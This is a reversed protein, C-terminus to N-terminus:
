LSNFAIGVIERFIAIDAPQAALPVQPVAYFRLLAKVHPEGALKPATSIICRGHYLVPLRVYLFGAINRVDHSIFRETKDIVVHFFSTPRQVSDFFIQGRIVAVIRKIPNKPTQIGHTLHDNPSAVSPSAAQDPIETSCETISMGRKAFPQSLTEVFDSVM